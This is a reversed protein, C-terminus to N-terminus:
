AREPVRTRRRSVALSVWTSRAAPVPMLVASIAVWSDNDCAVTRM